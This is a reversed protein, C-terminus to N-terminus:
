YANNEDQEIIDDINQTTILGLNIKEEINVDKALLVECIEILRESKWFFRVITEDFPIEATIGKASDEIRRKTQFKSRVDCEFTEILAKIFELPENKYQKLKHQIKNVNPIVNATLLVTNRTDITEEIWVPIKSPNASDYNPVYPKIDYVPTTDVLDCASIYLCHKEKNVSEIKALTVGIPNPRHPSRTSFVGRKEKLM